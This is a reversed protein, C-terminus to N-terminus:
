CIRWPRLQGADVLPRAVEGSQGRQVEGDRSAPVLNLKTDDSRLFDDTNSGNVGDPNAFDENGSALGVGCPM